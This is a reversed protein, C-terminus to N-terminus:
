LNSQRCTGTHTTKGVYEYEYEYVWWCVFEQGKRSDVTDEHEYPGEVIRFGLPELVRKYDDVTVPFPPGKLPGRSTNMDVGELVPFILTLLRGTNPKLLTSMRQAWQERLNPPLACFFTYDYIFDFLHDADADTNDADTDTNDASPPTDDSMIPIYSEIDRGHLNYRINFQNVRAWDKTPAFFDGQIFQIQTTETGTGTGTGVVRVGEEDERPIKKDVPIVLSCVHTHAQTLSTNSIDLGMVTSVVGKRQLNHFYRAVSVLDYGSGCGPILAKLARGHGGDRDGNCFSTSDRYHGLESILVPTPKGLDWPTVGDKWLDDWKNLGQQLTRSSSSSSSSTM